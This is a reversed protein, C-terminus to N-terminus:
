RYLPLSFNFVSGINERSDFWIKGGSQEIISKAIYLGLGTGDTQYRTINSSRFFKNFIQSQQEKPIGVGDDKISFVLFNGTRSLGIEIRGRALTYKISNSLLNEVVLRIREKDAIVNQVEGKKNVIIQINKAGALASFNGAVDTIVEVIDVEDKNLLLKGQDIKTVDLLDNVLRTMRNALINITAVSGRQKDNLGENFKTLMLETEWRIASLPTRLQHSTVSVFESKLKNLKAMEETQRIIFNGIIFIVSVVLAEAVVIVRPEDYSRSIFFTATMAIINILGVVIFLFSPTKWISVGLNEAQKRLDFDNIIKM